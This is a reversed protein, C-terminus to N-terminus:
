SKTAGPATTSGISAACRTSISRIRTSCRSSAGGPKSWTTSGTRTSKASESLAASAASRRAARRRPARAGQGPRALQEVGRLDAVLADTAGEHTPDEALVREYIERAADFAGLRQELIEAAEARLDRALAPAAAEARQVLVQGLEAWQQAKRYISAMGDLAADNAPDTSLVNQFCPLALDPRQVKDAYWRGM